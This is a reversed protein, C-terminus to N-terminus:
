LCPRARSKAPPVPRGTAAWRRWRPDVMVGFWDQALISLYQGMGRGLLAALSVYGLLLLWGGAFSRLDSGQAQLLGFIGGSARGRVAMAREAFTLALLVFPVLSLLYAAPLPADVANAVWGVLTFANLSLALSFALAVGWSLKGLRSTRIIADTNGGTSSNQM